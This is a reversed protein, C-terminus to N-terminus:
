HEQRHVVARAPATPRPGTVDNVITYGAVHDPVANKAIARAGRGVVVGLEVEWDFQASVNPELCLNANPDTMASQLKVFMVPHEAPETRLLGRAEADHDVYNM